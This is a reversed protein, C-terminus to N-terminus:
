VMKMESKAGEALAPGVVPKAPGEKMKRTAKRHCVPVSGDPTWNTQNLMHTKQKKKM